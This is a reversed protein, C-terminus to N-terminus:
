RDHPHNSVSQQDASSTSFNSPSGGRYTIPQRFKAASAAHDSAYGYCRPKTIPRVLTGAPHLTVRLRQGCWSGDYFFFKTACDVVNRRRRHCWRKYAVGAIQCGSVGNCVEMSFATAAFQARKLSLFPSAVAQAALALVGVILVAVTLRKM